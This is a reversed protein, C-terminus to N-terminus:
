SANWIKEYPILQRYFVAGKEDSEMTVAIHTSKISIEGESPKCTLTMRALAKHAIVSVDEYTRGVERVAVGNNELSAYMSIGEHGVAGDYFYWFEFQLKSPGEGLVRFGSLSNKPTQTEPIRDALRLSLRSLQRLHWGIVVIPARIVAILIYLALGAALSYLIFTIGSSFSTVQGTWWAYLFAGLTLVLSPFVQGVGFRKIDAAIQRRVAHDALYDPEIPSAPRETPLHSM